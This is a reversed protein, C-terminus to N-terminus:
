RFPRARHLQVAPDHGRVIEIQKPHTRQAAAEEQRVLFSFVSTAKILSCKQRFCSAESGCTSPRLRVRFPTGVVITPTM